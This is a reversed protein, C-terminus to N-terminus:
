ILRKKQSSDAAMKETAIGDTVRCQFMLEAMDAVASEERQAQMLQLARARFDKGPITPRDRWELVLIRQRNQDLGCDDMWEAYRAPFIGRRVLESVYEKGM